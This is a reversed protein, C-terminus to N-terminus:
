ELPEKSVFGNISTNCCSGYVRNVEVGNGQIFIEIGGILLLFFFFFGSASRVRM